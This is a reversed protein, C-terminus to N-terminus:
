PTVLLKGQLLKPRKKKPPMPAQPQFGIKVPPLNFRYISYNNSQFVKILWQTTNFKELTGYFVPRGNPPPSFLQTPEDPSFYLNLEPLEYAMREDVILYTYDSFRLEALLNSPTIPAGPKALYLDWVPFGLYPNAVNQLGFSDFILGTYRDTVINNGTGFRTSFWASTGLLEPTVSRADSGYLFPGPFRYAADIGAATGGVLAVALAAMLASRLSIRAWRLRSRGAWNILWVAAPAALLSLGIWTFAWSRRAGEAGNPSLIFITSPFYLLGFVAFGFVIARRPGPPLRGSRIWSRILILGGIAMGLAFLTVLYASYQEWWPSLSAVFLQRASISNKAVETVESLGEDLFPSLYSWTGPAVFTFWTGATLAAALTLGWATAATSLLGKRRALGPISASLSVLAMVLVLTITSLHHTVVTGLALTVTLVSWTSRGERSESRIARVYTVLTWVVLTIAMSEYAYQTDFYLFSSNLGYLMAALSATRSNFGLAQALAAIGLVLTVHLFILLLTAAPWITLGTAHVLAATTAHLGPYRAIIHILPNPVFLKGTNLVEYTQRWHGYEDHYAPSTPDRLLKPAYSILGYFLLSATRVTPRTARLAILGALPLQLLFMGLWFFTFESESSIASQGISYGHVVALMGVVECIAFAAVTLSLFGRSKERRKPSPQRLTPELQRYRSTHRKSFDVSRPLDPQPFPRDAPPWRHDAPRTRPLEGQRPPPPFDGNLLSREVQQRDDETSPVQDAGFWEGTQAVRHHGAPPYEHAGYDAPTDTM